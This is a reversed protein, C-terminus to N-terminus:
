SRLDVSEGGRMASGTQLRRCFGSEKGKDFIGQARKGEPFMQEIEKSTEAETKGKKGKTSM